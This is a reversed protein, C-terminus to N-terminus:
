KFKKRFPNIVYNPPTPKFKQERQQLIFNYSQFKRLANIDINGTMISVNDGGKIKIIDKIYSESPQTIRSDGYQSTNVQIVFAHIDRSVSEVINSFYSLDRNHEIAVLFDVDGRYLSRKEIDCLEFCNFTSFSMGKWKYLRLKEKKFESDTPLNFSNRGIIQKTEEPSYDKKLRFDIYLNKYSNFKFPLSTLMYNYVKNKQTFHEIGTIIGIENKRSFNTLISVWQYPLCIEPFILLDCNNKIAQNLIINLEDLRKFSLNSNNLMSNISDKALVKLNAIGIKLNGTIKKSYIEIEKLKSNYKNNNSKPYFLDYGNNEDLKNYRLYEKLAKREIFFNKDNKETNWRRLYHFYVLEHYHIFRPSFRIKFDNFKFNTKKKITLDTYSFNFKQECYNLLPFFSYQQRFMNSDLLIKAEKDIEEIYNKSDGTNIIFQKVIKERFFARNLTASMIISYNLHSKLTKKLSEIIHKNASNNGNEPSYILQEIIELQSKVFQILPNELKNIVFFTIVKEWLQNLEISRSGSFYDLIKESIDKLIDKDIEKSYQTASILKRLHKSAGLKNTKIGDISRIKNISDSYILEYSETNFTEFIQTAEPQLRFESSNKLIEEEFKDLIDASENSFLHYLKVKKDQFILINNNLIIEYNKKDESNKKIRIAKNWCNQKILYKTIFDSVPNKSKSKIQPNSIVILIDDVYRGYYEPKIENEIKDDLYTLYYNSIICSSLLGIPIIKKNHIIIKDAKLKEIYINHVQELFDNLWQNDDISYEKFAEFNFDISNYYEKIDLNLIAVDHNQKHLSKAKKIANDRWENYKDFYRYFLHIKKEEFLNDDNRYLRNGFCNESFGVDIKDGIKMMWLISIIHIEVSCNIFTTIKSTTYKEQVNSNSYYFPSGNNSTNNEFELKKPFISYSISKLFEFPIQEEKYKIISKALKKFKKDLDKDKEYEAIKFRLDLSFNEHYIYSKLKRYASELEKQLDTILLM